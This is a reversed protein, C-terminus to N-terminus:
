RRRVAWYGPKRRHHSVAAVWIQDPLNEYIISHPFRKLPALRLGDEELAYMEPHQQIRSLLSSFELHFDIALDNDIAEYHQAAAQAEEQAEPHFLVPKM